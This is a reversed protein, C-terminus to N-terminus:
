YAKNQEIKRLGLTGINRDSAFVLELENDNNVRIGVSQNFTDISDIGVATHGPYNPKRSQLALTVLEIASNWATSTLGTVLIYILYSVTMICYALIVALALRISTTDNCYGYAYFTLFRDVESWNAPYSVSGNRFEFTVGLKGEDEFYCADSIALTFAMALSVDETGSTFRTFYPDKLM